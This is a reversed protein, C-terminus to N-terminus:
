IPTKVNNHDDFIKRNFSNNLAIFMYNDTSVLDPYYIYQNIDEWCYGM